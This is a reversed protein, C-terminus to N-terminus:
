SCWAFLLNLPYLSSDQCLPAPDPHEGAFEYAGVDLGRAKPRPAVQMPHVYVYGPVIKRQTEPDLEVARDIAPSQATLRYDFMKPDEFYPRRTQLNGIIVGDGDVFQGLGIFLNNLIKVSNQSRNLVFYGDGKDNVLTNNIFYADKDNYKDGEPAYSIMHYNDAMQSQHFLNGVVYATGGNALDLLYSSAGDNEDMIRNNAIINERARSKVNNGTIAGHVYSGRLIFRGIEGIYINHGLRGYKEYDVTNDYFESFEIVIVSDPNNSTLIGMQNGHFVSNKITLNKGEQRIGAGNLDSVQAGSFEINDVVTDEGKIVWIAKGEANRGAARLHPRGGVGLLTLANQRWVAVDGDYEAAEIEVTDGDKAVAAAESPNRYLGAPGVRIVDGQRRAASNRNAVGPTVGTKIRAPPPLGPPVGDTAVDTAAFVFTSSLSVGVQSSAFPSTEESAFLTWIM